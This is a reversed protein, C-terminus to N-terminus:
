GKGGTRRIIRLHRRDATEGPAITIDLRKDPLLDGAREAWEIVCFAEPDDLYDEIGFALAAASDPLRYLDIHYLRGRPSPYEQVITFTPSTVPEEIGLGRAFGRCFVTKGAGLDGHLAIITGPEVTAALDTAFAATAAPSDTLREQADTATKM